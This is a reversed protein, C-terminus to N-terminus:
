EESHKSQYIKDSQEAKKTNELLKQENIQNQWFRQAQEKLSELFKFAKALHSALMPLKAPGFVVVAVFFILLLELTTM